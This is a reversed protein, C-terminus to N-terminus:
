ANTKALRALTRVGVIEPDQGWVSVPVYVTAGDPKAAEIRRERRIMAEPTHCAEWARWAEAESVGLEAAFDAMLQVNM